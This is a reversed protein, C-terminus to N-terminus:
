HVKCDRKLAVVVVLNGSGYLADFLTFRTLVLAPATLGQLVMDFLHVRKLSLAPVAETIVAEGSQLLSPVRYCDAELRL